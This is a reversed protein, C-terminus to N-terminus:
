RRTRSSSPACPRADRGQSVRNDMGGRPDLHEGEARAQGADGARKAAAVALLRKRPLRDRRPSPRPCASRRRARRMGPRDRAIRAKRSARRHDHERVPEFAAIRAREDGGHVPEGRPRMADVPQRRECAVRGIPGVRLDQARDARKEGRKRIAAARAPTGACGTWRRLARPMVDPITSEWKWMQRWASRGHSTPGICGRM